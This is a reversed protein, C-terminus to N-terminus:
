QLEDAVEKISEYNYFDDVLWMNTVYEQEKQSKIESYLELGMKMGAASIFIFLPFIIAGEVTFSGKLQM